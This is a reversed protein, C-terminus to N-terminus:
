KETKTKQDRVLKEAIAARIFELRELQVGKCHEELKALMDDQLTLTVRKINAGRQNPAM